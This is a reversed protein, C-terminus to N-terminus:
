NLSAVLSGRLAHANITAHSGTTLKDGHEAHPCGRIRIFGSKLLEPM